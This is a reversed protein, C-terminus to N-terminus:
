SFIRRRCFTNKLATADIGLKAAPDAGVVLLAGLDGKAAADFIEALTKGADRAAGSVGRCLGRGGVPVYGPLLDPFLGM